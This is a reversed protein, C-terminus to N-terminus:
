LTSVDMAVGPCIHDAVPIPGLEYTILPIFGYVSCVQQFKSSIGFANNGIQLDSAIAVCDKGMMAIVSISNHDM